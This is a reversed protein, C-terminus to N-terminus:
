RPLVRPSYPAFISHLAPIVPILVLPSISFIFAEALKSDPIIISVFLVVGSLLAGLAALRFVQVAVAPDDQNLRVLDVMKLRKIREELAARRGAM